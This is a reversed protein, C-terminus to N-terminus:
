KIKNIFNSNRWMRIIKGTNDREFRVEEGPTEDSRIRRFIDHSVPKLLAM